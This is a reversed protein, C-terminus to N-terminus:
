LSKGALDTASVKGIRPNWTQKGIRVKVTRDMKGHSVVVGIIQKHPVTKERQAKENIHLHKATSHQLYATPIRDQGLPKKLLFDRRNLRYVKGDPGIRQSAPLTPDYKPTSTVSRDPLNAPPIPTTSTPAEAQTALCRRCVWQSANPQTSSLARIPLSLVPRSMTPAITHAPRTCHINKPPKLDFTRRDRSDRNRIRHLSM